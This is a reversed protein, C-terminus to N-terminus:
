SERPRAYTRGVVTGSEQDAMFTVYELAERFESFSLKKVSRGPITYESTRWSGSALDDLMQAKLVTWTTFAM